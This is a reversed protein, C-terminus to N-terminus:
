KEVMVVRTGALWDHLALNEKSIIVMAGSLLTIMYAVIMLPSEVYFRLFLTLAQRLYTSALTSVGEILLLGVIHRIFLCWFDLERGNRRVIQLQCIRKGITQGHWIRQPVIVFYAFFVLMAIAFVLYAWGFALGKAPFLYLSTFFEHSGSLLNFILVAPLSMLIGSFVWDLVYACARRWILSYVFRGDNSNSYPISSITPTSGVKSM